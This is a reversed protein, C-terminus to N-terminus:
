TASTVTDELNPQPVMPIAYPFVRTAVCYAFVSTAVGGLIDILYHQGTTVTSAAVGIALLWILIKVAYPARSSRHSIFLAPLVAFIVHSSPCCNADNDVALVMRMLAGGIGSVNSYDPRAIALPWLAYSLFAILSAVSYGLLIMWFGRRDRLFKFPVFPMVYGAFVYLLASEPVIVAPWVDIPRTLRIAVDPQAGWNNLYKYIALWIAFFAGLSVARIAWERKSLDVSSIPNSDSIRTPRNANTRTGAFFADGRPNAFFLEFRESMQGVWANTPKLNRVFSWSFNNFEIRALALNLLVFIGGWSSAMRALFAPVSGKEIIRDYYDNFEKLESAFDRGAIDRQNQTLDIIRQQELIFPQRVLEEASILQIYGFLFVGPLLVFLCVTGCWRFLNVTSPAYLDQYRTGLMWALLALVIGLAGLFRNTVDLLKERYWNFATMLRAAAGIRNEPPVNSEAEHAIAALTRKHAGIAHSDHISGLVFISLAAVALSFSVISYVAYPYYARQLDGYERDWLEDESRPARDPDLKREEEWCELVMKRRYEQLPTRGRRIGDFIEPMTLVFNSVSIVLGGILFVSLAIIWYTGGPAIQEASHPHIRALAFVGFGLGTVFVIEIWYGTHDIGRVKRFAERWIRSPFLCYTAYLVGWCVLVASISIRGWFDTPILASM